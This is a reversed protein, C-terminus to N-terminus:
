HLQGQQFLYCIFGNQLVFSGNGNQQCVERRGTNGKKVLNEVQSSIAHMHMDNHENINLFRRKPSRLQKQQVLVSFMIGYLICSKVRFEIGVIGVRQRTLNQLIGLHADIVLPITASTDKAIDTLATSKQNNFFGTQLNAM